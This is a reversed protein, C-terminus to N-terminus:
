ESKNPTAATPLEPKKEHHSCIRSVRHLSSTSASSATSSPPKIGSPKVVKPILSAANEGSPTPKEQSEENSDSM